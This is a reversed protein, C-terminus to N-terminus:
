WEAAAIALLAHQILRDVFADDIADAHMATAAPARRETKSSRRGAAVLSSASRINWPMIGSM